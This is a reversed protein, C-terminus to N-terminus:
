RCVVPLNAAAKLGSPTLAEGKRRGRPRHTLGCQRLAKLRDRVTRESLKALGGLQVQTLTQPHAKELARLIATEEATLPPPTGAKGAACRRVHDMAEHLNPLDEPPVRVVPCREDPDSGSRGFLVDVLGNALRPTKPTHRRKPRKSM